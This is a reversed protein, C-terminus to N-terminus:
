EPPFLHRLHAPIAALATLRREDAEPTGRIDVVPGVLQEEDPSLRRRVHFARGTWEEWQGTESRGVGSLAVLAASRLTTRSGKGACSAHWVPGGYGEEM